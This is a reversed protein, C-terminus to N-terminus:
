RYEIRFQLKKIAKPSVGTEEDVAMCDACSIRRYEADIETEKALIKGDANLPISISVTHDFRLIGGCKCRLYDM